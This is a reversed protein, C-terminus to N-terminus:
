LGDGGKKAEAIRQCLDGGEELLERVEQTTMPLSNIGIGWATLTLIEKETLYDDDDTLDSMASMM